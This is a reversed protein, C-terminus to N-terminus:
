QSVLCKCSTQNSTCDCIVVGSVVTANGNILKQEAAIAASSVSRALGSVVALAIMSAYLLRKAMLLFTRKASLKVVEPVPTSYKM